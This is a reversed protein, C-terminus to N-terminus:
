SLMMKLANSGHTAVRRSAAASPRVLQKGMPTGTGENKQDSAEHEACQLEVRLAALVHAVERQDVHAALRWALALESMYARSEYADIQIQLQMHDLALVRMAYDCALMHVLRHVMLEAEDPTLTAFLRTESDGSQSSQEMAVALFQEHVQLVGSHLKSLRAMAKDLEASAHIGKENANLADQVGDEFADILDTGEAGRYGLAYERLLLAANISAVLHVSSAAVLEMWADIYTRLASCHRLLARRTQAVTSMDELMWPRM